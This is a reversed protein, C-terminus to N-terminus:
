DSFCSFQWLHLFLGQSVYYDKHSMFYSVVLSSTVISDIHQLNCSQFVLQLILSPHKFLLPCSAGPSSISLTISPMDRLLFLLSSLSCHVYAISVAPLFFLHLGQSFFERSHTRIIVCTALHCHMSIM